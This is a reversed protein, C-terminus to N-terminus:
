IGYPTIPRFLSAQAKIPADNRSIVGLLVVVFMCVHLGKWCHCSYPSTPQPSQSPIPRVPGLPPSVMQPGKSRSGHFELNFHTVFCM